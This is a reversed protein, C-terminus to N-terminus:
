LHPLEFTQSRRIGDRGNRRRGQIREAIATGHRGAQDGRVFILRREGACGREAEVQSRDCLLQLGVANGGERSRMLLQELRESVLAPGRHAASM